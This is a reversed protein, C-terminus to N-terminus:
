LLWEALPMYAVAAGPGPPLGDGRWAIGSLGALRLAAHGPATCARVRTADRPDEATVCALATGIFPGGPPGADIAARLPPLAQARGQLRRILPVAFTVFAALADLPEVPLVVCPRGDVRMVRPPRLGDDPAAPEAADLVLLLECCRAAMQLAPMDPQLTGTGAISILRVGLRELAAQLMVSAVDEPARRVLTGPTAMTVVGCRLRAHVPVTAHGSAALLPLLFWDLRTGAPLVPEDLHTEPPPLVALGRGLVRGGAATLPLQELADPPGALHALALQAEHLQSLTAIREPMGTSALTDTLLMTPMPQLLLHGLTPASAPAVLACDAGAELRVTPPSGDTCERCPV